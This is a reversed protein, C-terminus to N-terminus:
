EDAMGGTVVDLEAENLTQVTEDAWERVVDVIARYQRLEASRMGQFYYISHPAMYLANVFNNAAARFADLSLPDAASPAGDAQAMRMTELERQTQRLQREMDDADDEARQAREILSKASAAMRKAEAYDDPEVCVREVRAPKAQEAKYKNELDACASSLKDNLANVREMEADRARIAAKLEAVTCSEAHAEAAVHEREEAPVELLAMIKTYPLQALVSEAPVERAIRMLNNATRQSMSVHGNLWGEWEGHKLQAKAEILARGMVLVSTTFATAQTKIIAELEDLPRLTKTINSM